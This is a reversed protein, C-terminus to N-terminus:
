LQFIGNQLAILDTHNPTVVLVNEELISIVERINKRDISINYERIKLGSLRNMTFIFEKM